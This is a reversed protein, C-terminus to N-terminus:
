ALSPTSNSLHMLLTEGWQVQCVKQKNSEMILENRYEIEKFMFRLDYLLVLFTKM